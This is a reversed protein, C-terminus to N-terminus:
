HEGNKTICDNLYSLVDKQDAFVKDWDSKPDSYLSYLHIPIDVGAGPWTSKLWTGGAAHEREVITLDVRSGLQRRLQIAQSIGSLGGGVITVRTTPRPSPSPHETM